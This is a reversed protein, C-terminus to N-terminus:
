KRVKRYVVVRELGLTKLIADGPDRKGKLVDNVYAGTVQAQEAWAKQSGAKKCARRLAERVQDVNM